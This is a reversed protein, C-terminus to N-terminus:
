PADAEREDLTGRAAKNVPIPVRDEAILARIRALGNRETLVEGAVDYLTITVTADERTRIYAAVAQEDARFDLLTQEDVPGIVVTTHCRYHGANTAGRAFRAAYETSIPHGDDGVVARSAGRTVVLCAGLWWAVGAHIQDPATGTAGGDRIVAATDIPNLM